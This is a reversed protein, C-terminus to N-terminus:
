AKSYSFSLRDKLAWTVAGSFLVTFVSGIVIMPVNGTFKGYAFMPLGLVISGLIGWFMGGEYVRNCSLTIVTPLLTSARLTGYFLFLYLIEMGPINAIMVAGIAFVVMLSRSFGVSDGKIEARSHIDHGTISAIACLNSDLTSVLGSLLMFVFPVVTWAPLFAMVTELNVLQADKVNMALGGAVFGLLSMLLPVTAFILAGKIFAGKVEDKKTSFARQWFSQDGFPVSMLGITVPLGFTWFAKGGDGSFLSTFTGTRGILGPLVASFGGAKAVVWPVFVFGILAIFIMQIYDTMVSARMGSYFSYSLAILSLLVTVLLFNLGTLTSIIMGGALLQVAFSCMALGILELLYLNHVRKSHRELIYGSLTFGEPLVRRIKTAFFAFVVLCLVNPLTFWFVGVWGQQYGKQAAVFLAPAWIWTLHGCDFIRVAM